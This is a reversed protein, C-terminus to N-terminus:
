AYLCDHGSKQNKETARLREYFAKLGPNLRTGGLAGM